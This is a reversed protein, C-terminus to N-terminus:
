CSELICIIVGLQMGESLLSPSDRSVIHETPMLIPSNIPHVRTVWGCNLESGVSLFLLVNELSVMGKAPDNALWVIHVNGLPGM